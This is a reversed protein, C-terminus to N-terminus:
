EGAETKEGGAEKDESDGVGDEGGAGDVLFSLKEENEIFFQPDLEIAPVLFERKTPRHVYRTYKRTRAKVRLVRRRELMLGLFHKLEANELSLSGEEEGEFFSIFLNDATLKLAEAEEKGDNPKPKFTQTWRCLVKGPMEVKNADAILVDVRVLEADETKVLACAVADDKEFEVETHYSKRAIPTIHWEM